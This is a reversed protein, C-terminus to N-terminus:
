RRENENGYITNDRFDAMKELDEIAREAEEANMVSIAVGAHVVIYDGEAAEPVTDVCVEREVGCFDTTAMTFLGSEDTHIHTIKGPVALCM